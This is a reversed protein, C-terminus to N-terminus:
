DTELEMLRQEAFGIMEPLFKTVSGNELLKSRPGSPEVRARRKSSLRM